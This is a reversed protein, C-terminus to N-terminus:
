GVSAVDVAVEAFASGHGEEEAQGGVDVVNFGVATAGGEPGAAVEFGPGEKAFVGVVEFVAAPFMGFVEFHDFVNLGDFKVGFCAVDSEPVTVDQVFGRLVGACFDAVAEEGSQRM